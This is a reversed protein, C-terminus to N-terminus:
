VHREDVRGVPHAVDVGRQTEVLREAELPAAALGVSVITASAM